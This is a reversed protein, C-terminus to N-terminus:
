LLLSENNPLTSEGFQLSFEPTKLFDTLSSDVNELMQLVTRLIESVAPLIM